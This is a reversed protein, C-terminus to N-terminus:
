NRKRDDRGEIKPIWIAATDDGYPETAGLLFRTGVWACIVADLKDEFRKLTAFSEMKSPVSLTSELNTVEASLGCIILHFSELLKEKRQDQSSGPWHKRSRGVKYKLRERLNLLRVLAAHPYVEILWRDSKASPDITRLKFGRKEFQATTWASLPGLRESVPSHTACLYVGFAKSVRNDAERRGTIKNTALPMDVAVVKITGPAALKEAAHAVLSLNPMSASSQSASLDNAWKALGCFEDYSSAAAVCRWKDGEEVLLAVGSPNRTGWAADIGLAADM